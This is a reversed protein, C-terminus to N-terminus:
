KILDHVRPKDHSLFSGCTQGTSLSLTKQLAVNFQKKPPNNQKKNRKKKKRKM